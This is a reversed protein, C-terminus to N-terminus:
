PGGALVLPDSIQTDQARFYLRIPVRESHGIGAKEASVQISHSPNGTIHFRGNRDSTVHTDERFTTFNFTWLTVKAGAVLRGDRDVVAGEVIGNDHTSAYLDWGAAVVFLVFLTLVFRNLLWRQWRPRASRDEENGKM